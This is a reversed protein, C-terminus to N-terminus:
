GADRLYASMARRDRGMRDLARAAEDRAVRLEEIMGRQAALLELWAERRGQEPASGGEFAGRLWADHAELLASAGEFDNAAICARIAAVPLISADATM